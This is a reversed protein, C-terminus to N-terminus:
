WRNSRKKRTVPGCCYKSQASDDSDVIRNQQFVNELSVKFVVFFAVNEVRGKSLDEAITSFGKKINM